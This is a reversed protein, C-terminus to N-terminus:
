IYIFIFYIVVVELSIQEGKIQKLSLSLDQAWISLNFENIPLWDLGLFTRESQRLIGTICAYCANNMKTCSKTYSKTHTTERM